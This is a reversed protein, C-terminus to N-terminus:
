QSPNIACEGCGFLRITFKSECHEHFCHGCKLILYDLSHISNKCKSCYIQNSYEDVSEDVSSDFLEDVSVFVDQQENLFYNINSESNDFIFATDLDSPNASIINTNSTIQYLDRAFIRDDGIISSLMYQDLESEESPESIEIIHRDDGIISSLMYQDLESGECPESIEIIHRYDSVLPQDNIIENPETM